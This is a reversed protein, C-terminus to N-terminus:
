DEQRRKQSLGLLGAVAMVVGASALAVSGKEGTNPLTKAPASYALEQAQPAAPEDGKVDKVDGTVDSVAHKVSVEQISAELNIKPVVVFLRPLYPEAFGVIPKKITVKLFSPDTPMNYRDNILKKNYIKDLKIKIDLVDGVVAGHHNDVTGDVTIDLGKARYETVVQDFAVDAEHQAKLAKATHELMNQIEFELGAKTKGGNKWTETQPIIKVGAKKLDSESKEVLKKTKAVLQIDSQLDALQKETAKKAEEVTKYVVEDERYAIMRLAEAEKVKDAISKELQDRKTILDKATKVQKDMAETAEQITDYEAKEEKYRLNNENLLSKLDQYSKSLDAETKPAEEKPAAEKSKSEETKPSEAEVKPAPTEAKPAKEVDTKPSEVDVKPAEAKPATSETVVTAPAPTSVEDASATVANVAGFLLAASVFLVGTAGKKMKRISGHGKYKIM